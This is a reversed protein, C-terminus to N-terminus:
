INKNELKNPSVHNMKFFTNLNHITSIFFFYSSHDSILKFQMSVTDKERKQLNSNFFYNIKM